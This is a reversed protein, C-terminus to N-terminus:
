GDIKKRRKEADLKQKLLFKKIAAPATKSNFMGGAPGNMTNYENQHPRVTAIYKAVVEETFHKVKIEPHGNKNANATADAIQNACRTPNFDPRNNKDCSELFINGFLKSAMGVKEETILPEVPNTCAVLNLMTVIIVLNKM